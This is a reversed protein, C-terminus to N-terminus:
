RCDQGTNSIMLRVDAQDLRGQIRVADIASHLIVTCPYDARVVRSFQLKM